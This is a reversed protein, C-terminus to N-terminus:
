RMLRLLMLTDSWPADTNPSNSFTFWDSTFSSHTIGRSLECLYQQLSKQKMKILRLQFLIESRPADTNPSASFTFLDNFCSSHTVDGKLVCLPLLLNNSVQLRLPFSIDGSAANTNPTLRITFWDSFSSFHTWRSCSVFCKFYVTTKQRMELRLLFIFESLLAM